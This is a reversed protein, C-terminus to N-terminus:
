YEESTEFNESFKLGTIIENIEDVCTEIESFDIRNEEYAMLVEQDEFIAAAIDELDRSAAVEEGDSNQLSYNVGVGTVKYQFPNANKFNM